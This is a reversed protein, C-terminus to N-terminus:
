PKMAKLQAEVSRIRVKLDRIYELDQDDIPMAEHEEALAQLAGLRQYKREITEMHKRDWERAHEFREYEKM